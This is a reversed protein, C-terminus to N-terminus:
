LAGKCFLGIITLLRIIMAVGYWVHFLDHSVHFSDYGYAWVHLVCGCRQPRTDLTEQFFLSSFLSFLSKKKKLLSNICWSVRKICRQMLLRKLSVFDAFSIFGLSMQNAINRMRLKNKKLLSQKIMIWFGGYLKIIYKQSHASVWPGQGPANDCYMYAAFYTIQILYFSVNKERTKMDDHELQWWNDNTQFSLDRKCFLGIFSVINQLLSRYNKEGTKMDDHELQWWNDNTQFSLDRKCFLGIFSVINQL